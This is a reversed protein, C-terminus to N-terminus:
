HRRKKPHNASETIMEPFYEQLWNRIEQVATSCETPEIETKGHLMWATKYTDFKGKKFELRIGTAECDVYYWKSKNPADSLYFINDKPKYRIPEVITSEIAEGFHEEVFSKYQNTEKAKKLALGGNDAEITVFIEDGGSFKMTINYKKM